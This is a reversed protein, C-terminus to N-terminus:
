AQISCCYASRFAPLCVTWSWAQALSSDHIIEFERWGLNGVHDAHNGVPHRKGATPDILRKKDLSLGLGGPEITTTEKCGVTRKMSNQPMPVLVRLTAM